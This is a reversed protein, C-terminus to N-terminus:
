RSGDDDKVPYRIQSGCYKSFVFEVEVSKDELNYKPKNNLIFSKCEATLKM